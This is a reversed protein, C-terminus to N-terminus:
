EDTTTTRESMKDGIKGGAYGLGGSLGGLAAGGLGGALGGLAGAGISAIFGAFSFDGWCHEECGGAVYNIESQTLEQM